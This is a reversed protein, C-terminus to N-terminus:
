AGRRPRRRPAPPSPAGTGSERTRPSRAAAPWPRPCRSSQSVSVHRCISSNQRRAPSRRASSSSASAAPRPTLSDPHASRVPRRALLGGRRLGRRRARDPRRDRRHMEHGRTHSARPARVVDHRRGALHRAIELKREPDPGVQLLRYAAHLPQLATEAPSGALAAARSRAHTRHAGGGLARPPADEAQAAHQRAQAERARDAADHAGRHALLLRDRLHLAADAVEALGRLERGPVQAPHRRLKLLDRGEAVLRDQLHLRQQQGEAREAREAVAMIVGPLM